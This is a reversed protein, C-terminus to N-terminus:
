AGLQLHDNAPSADRRRELEAVLPKVQDIRDVLVARGAQNLRGAVKNVRGNLRRAATPSNEENMIKTMDYEMPDGSFYIGSAILGAVGLAIGVVAIQAPFRKALWAFPKGYVAGLRDRFSPELPLPRLRESLVFVAPLVGYTAIWCLLMGAGGIIGFHRFGRFDTTMLAGFSVMTVGVVALTAEATDVSATQVAQAVDQKQDRRAELYRAMWIVMANIGNGAIISVLFGTATNLYGVSFRAFALSWACGVLISFGLAVLARIRLFFLFVVALVMAVGSV